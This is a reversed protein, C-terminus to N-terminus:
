GRTSTAPPPASFEDVPLGATAVRHVLHGRAAATDPHLARTSARNGKATPSVTHHGTDHVYQGIHVGCVESV